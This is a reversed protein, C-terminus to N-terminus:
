KSLKACFETGQNTVLDIPTGFHCIWKDFIAEAVTVAEKNPLAVLEIYKTFADTICLIFKKGKDSMKLPGFLDAHVRQGPETPLPLPSLLTSPARDDRRRLQCRHCSKLHAAINADMGPWYFCQMLREKTKYIGDHGTLLQGHAETMADTTMAAPLFLVVRSPEFQCKIRRWVLGDKIFGDNSFLKVLSQCKPDHPLVKNLLFNKLGKILPDATQAQLLEASDWSITSVLNCSLYDAPM